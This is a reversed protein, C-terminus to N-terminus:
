FQKSSEVNAQIESNSSMFIATAIECLYPLHSPMDKLKSIQLLSEIIKSSVLASGLGPPCYRNCVYYMITEIESHLISHLDFKLLCAALNKFFAPMTSSFSYSQSAFSESIENEIKEDITSKIINRIVDSEEGDGRKRFLYNTNIVLELILSIFRVKSLNTLGFSSRNIVSVESFNQFVFWFAKLLGSISYSRLILNGGIGIFPVIEADTDDNELDESQLLPHSERPCPFKELCLWDEEHDKANKILPIGQEIKKQKFIGEKVLNIDIVVNEALKLLLDLSSKNICDSNLMNDKNVVEIIMQSYAALVLKEFNVQHNFLYRMYFNRESLLRHLLGSLNFKRLGLVPDEIFSEYQHFVYLLIDNQHHFYEKDM